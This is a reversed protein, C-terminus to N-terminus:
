VKEPRTAWYIIAILPFQLAVRIWLAAPSAATDGFPIGAMAMYINAPLVALLFLGLIIGVRPRFHPCLLMVGMAIEMLGTVWVILKPFPLGPPVIAAFDDVAVFHMVGAAVFFLCFFVCLGHKIVRVM